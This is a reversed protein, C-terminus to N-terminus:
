VVASKAESHQIQEKAVGPQPCSQKMPLNEDATQLPFGKKVMAIEGGRKNM